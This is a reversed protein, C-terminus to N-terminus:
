GFVKFTVFVFGGSLLSWIQEIELSRGAARGRAAAWPFRPAHTHAHARVYAPADEDTYPLTSSQPFGCYRQPSEM